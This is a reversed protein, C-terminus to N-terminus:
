TTNEGTGGAHLAKQASAICEKCIVTFCARCYGACYPAVAKCVRCTNPGAKFDVKQHQCTGPYIAPTTVTPVRLAETLSRVLFTNNRPSARPSARRKAVRSNDGAVKRITEKKELDRSSHNRNQTPWSATATSRSRPPSGGADSRSSSSADCLSSSSTASGRRTLQQSSEAEDIYRNQINREVDVSRIRAGVANTDAELMDVQCRARALNDELARRRWQWNDQRGRGRIAAWVRRTLEALHALLGRKNHGILRHMEYELYRYRQRHRHYGGYCKDYQDFLEKEARNLNSVVRRAAPVDVTRTAGDVMDWVDVGIGDCICRPTNSLTAEVM